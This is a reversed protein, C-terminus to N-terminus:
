IEDSSRELRELAVEVEKAGFLTLAVVARGAKVELVEVGEHRIGALDFAVLDGKGVDVPEPAEQGCVQVRMDHLKAFDRTHPIRGAQGDTRRLPHFAVNIRGSLGRWDPEQTFRAFVYGSLVPAPKQIRERKGSPLYKGTAYAKLKAPYFAEVGEAELRKLLKDMMGSNVCLAYWWALKPATNSNGIYNPSVFPKPQASM